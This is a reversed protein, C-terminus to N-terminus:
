GPQPTERLTAAVAAAGVLFAVSAAIFYANSKIAGELGVALSGVVLAWGAWAPVLKARMIGVSLVLMGIVFALPSLYYPLSWESNQLDELVQEATAKDMGPRGWVEGTIGWSFGDLALVGMLGIAGAIGLAGGWVGLRRDQRALVFALGAIGAAFAFIALFTFFHALQWSTYHESIEALQEAENGNAFEEPHILNSILFLAAGLVLAVSAIRRADYAIPSV